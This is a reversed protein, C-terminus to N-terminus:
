TSIRYSTIKTRKMGPLYGLYEHSTHGLLIPIGNDLLYTVCTPLFSNQSEKDITPGFTVKKIHREQLGGKRAKNNVVNIAQSVQPLVLPTWTYQLCMNFHCSM